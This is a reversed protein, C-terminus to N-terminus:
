VGSLQLDAISQRAALQFRAIPAQPAGAGAGGGGARGGRGGGGAAGGARGERGRIFAILKSEEERLLRQAETETGQGGARGAAGGRAGAAGARGGPGGGGTPAADASVIDTLQVLNPTVTNPSVTPDLSLLHLNGDRQFTVATDNRMWRPNTEAASTRTVQRRTGTATEYIVIDGAETTLLRRRARDPRGTQPTDLAAAEATTLEKLGTGDRNVVFTAANEAGAKQWSFYIKTSDKSWRINSPSAGVLAPGRMISDITMAMVAPKATPATTQQDAIVASACVLLGLVLLSPLRRM